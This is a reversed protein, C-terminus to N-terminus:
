YYLVSFFLTSAQLEMVFWELLRATDGYLSRLDQTFWTPAAGSSGFELAALTLGYIGNAAVSADVNNANFPQQRLPTTLALRYPEFILAVSWKTVTM